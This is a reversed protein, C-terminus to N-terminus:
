FLFRKQKSPRFTIMNIYIDTDDSVASWGMLYGTSLFLAKEISKIADDYRKLDKLRDFFGM